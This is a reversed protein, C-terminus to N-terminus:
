LPAVTLGYISLRGLKPIKGAYLSRTTEHGSRPAAYAYADPGPVLSIRARRPAPAPRGGVHLGRGEGFGGMRVRPNVYYASPVNAESGARQKGYCVQLPSACSGRGRGPCGARQFSPSVPEDRMRVVSKRLLQGRTPTRGAPCTDARAGTKGPRSLGSGAPQPPLM